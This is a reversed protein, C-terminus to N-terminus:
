AGKLSNDYVSRWLDSLTKSSKWLWTHLDDKKVSNWHDSHLTAMISAEAQLLDKRDSDKYDEITVGKMTLRNRVLFRNTNVTGYFNNDDSDDNWFAKKLIPLRSNMSLTQVTRGYEVGPKPAEKLELISRKGSQNEVLLWYRTLGASGGEWKERSAIDLTKYNVFYKDVISEINAYRSDSHAIPKLSDDKDKIDKFQQKQDTKKTKKHWVDKAEQEWDPYLSQPITAIRTPDKVVDVYKELVDKTLADDFWLRLATFFRLADYAIPCYGSDDLDNYIFTSEHALNLFGFNEPHADGFCLGEEGPIKDTPIQALDHYYAPPYSRFFEVPKGLSREWKESFPDKSTSDAKLFLPDTQQIFNKDLDIKFDAKDLFVGTKSYLLADSPTSWMVISVFLVIAVLTAKLPFKIAM